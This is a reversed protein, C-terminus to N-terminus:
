WTATSCERALRTGHGGSSTRTIGASDGLSEFCTIVSSDDHTEGLAFAAPLLLLCLSLCLLFSLVIRSKNNM